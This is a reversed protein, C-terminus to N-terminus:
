WYYLENIFLLTLYEWGLLVALITWVKWTTEFAADVEGILYFPKCGFEFRFNENILKKVM